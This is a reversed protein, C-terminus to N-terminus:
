AIFRSFGCMAWETGNYVFTWTDLGNGADSYIVNSDSDNISLTASVAGTASVFVSVRQGLQPAAPLNVTFTAVSNSLIVTGCENTLQATETSVMAIEQVVSGYFAQNLVGQLLPNMKIAPYQGGTVIQNILVQLEAQTAM